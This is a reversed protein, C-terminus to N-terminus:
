TFTVFAGIVRVKFGAPVDSTGDKSINNHQWYPPTSMEKKPDYIMISKGRGTIKRDHDVAEFLKVNIYEEKGALAQAGTQIYSYILKSSTNFPILITQCVEGPM